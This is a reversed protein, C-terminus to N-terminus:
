KVLTEKVMIEIMKKIELILIVKTFRENEFITKAFIMTIILITANIM